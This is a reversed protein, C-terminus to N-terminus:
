SAIPVLLLDNHDMDGDGKLVPSFGHCLCSVALMLFICGQCVSQSLSSEPDRDVDEKNPGKTGPIGLVLGPQSSTTHAPMLSLEHVLHHPRVGDQPGLVDVNFM